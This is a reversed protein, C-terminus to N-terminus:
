ISLSMIVVLIWPPNIYDLVSLHTGKSNSPNSFCTVLSMKRESFLCLNVQWTPPHEFQVPWMLPQHHKAHEHPSAEEKHASHQSVFALSLFNAWVSLISYKDNKTAFVGRSIAPTLLDNRLFNSFLLWVMCFTDGRLYYTLLYWLLNLTDKHPLPRWWFVYFSM